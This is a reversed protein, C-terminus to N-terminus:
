AFFFLAVRRVQSLGKRRATHTYLVLAAHQGGVANGYFRPRRPPTTFLGSVASCM